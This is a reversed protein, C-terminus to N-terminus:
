SSDRFVLSPLIIRFDYQLLTNVESLYWGKWKQHEPKFWIILRAYGCKILNWANCLCHLLITEAISSFPHGRTLWFISGFMPSFEFNLAANKELFKSKKLAGSFGCPTYIDPNRGRCRIRSTWGTWKSFTCFTSQPWRHAPINRWLRTFFLPEHWIKAEKVSYFQLASM